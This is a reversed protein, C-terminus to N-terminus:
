LNCLKELRVKKERDSFNVRGQFKGIEKVTLYWSGDCNPGTIRSKIGIDLLMKKSQKLGHLNMSKIRVRKRSNDVTGEDSFFAQLWAKKVNKSSNLICYPVFWERSKGVGMKKLLMYISKGAVALERGGSCKSCSRNFVRRIDDAFEKRLDGSTATYRIEYWERKIKKRHHSQLDKQSRRILSHAIYGDGCIRAHIRALEPTIAIM